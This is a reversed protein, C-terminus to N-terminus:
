YISTITFGQQALLSLVGDEGPLHLAGIAIFANGQELITGMRDVMSRNRDTLVRRVLDRYVAEDAVSYKFSFEHLGQLDRQLYLTKMVEFDSEVMEYNCVTDLLLRIQSEMAMDSFLSGQETLTELGTVTIGNQLAINHLHLDLPIGQEAPYNMLMFAAWPKLALVLDSPLQYGLLINRTKDFLEADIFDTLLRDDDFLMMQTLKFSENPDPLAEMVFHGTNQLAQRVPAPLDIIKEDSVHITGFLYSPEVDGRELKWLLADSYPLSSSPREGAPQIIRCDAQTAVAAIALSSWLWLVPLMLYWGYKGNKESQM